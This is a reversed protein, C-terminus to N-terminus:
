VGFGLGPLNKPLTPTRRTMIGPLRAMPAQVKDAPSLTVVSNAVTKDNADVISAEWIDVMNQFGEFEVLTFVTGVDRAAAQATVRDSQLGVLVATLMAALAACRGRPGPPAM